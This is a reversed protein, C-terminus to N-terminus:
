SPAEDPSATKTARRTKRLTAEQAELNELLADTAATDLSLRIIAKAIRRVDPKKRQKAEVRIRYDKKNNSRSMDIGGEPILSIFTHM